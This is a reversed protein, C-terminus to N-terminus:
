KRGTWFAKHGAAIARIRDRMHTARHAAHVADRVAAHSEAKTMRRDSWHRTAATRIAALSSRTSAAMRHLSDGMLQQKFQENPNGANDRASRLRDAATALTTTDLPETGLATRLQEVETYVQTLDTDGDNSMAAQMATRLDLTGTWATGLMGPTIPGPEASLTRGSTLGNVLPAVADLLKDVKPALDGSWTTGAVLVKGIPQATLIEDHIRSRWFGPAAVDSTFLRITRKM